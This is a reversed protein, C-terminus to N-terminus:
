KELKRVSQLKLKSRIKVPSLSRIFYLKARRVKGKGLIEIKEITPSHYFYTKEVYQGAAVGRVTFTKQISKPKRVALVIGEFAQVVKKNKEYFAQWVKVLQGPKIEPLDTRLYKKTVEAVKDM